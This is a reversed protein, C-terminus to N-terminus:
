DLCILFLYFLPLCFYIEIWGLYFVFKFSYCDEAFEASEARFVTGFLLVVKLYLELPSNKISGSFLSSLLLPVVIISNYAHVIESEEGRNGLGMSIASADM